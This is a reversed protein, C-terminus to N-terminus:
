PKSLSQRMPHDKLATQGTWSSCNEFFWRSAILIMQGSISVTFRRNRTIFHLETGKTKVELSSVASDRDSPLSIGFAGELLIFEAILASVGICIIIIERKTALQAFRTM